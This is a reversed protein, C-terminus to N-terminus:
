QSQEVVVNTLHSNSSYTVASKVDNNPVTINPNCNYFCRYWKATTVITTRIRVSELNTCGSFCSEMKSVTEPIDPVQTLATCNLFCGDMDTVNEPLEQVSSLSSCGNFCYQMNTINAPLEPAETLSSCGEFCMNMNTVSAPIHPAKTLTTCGSFGSSSYYLSTIGDPLQTGSLDVYKDTNNRLITRIQTYSSSTLGTIELSYASDSDNPEQAQLWAELGDLSGSYAPVPPVVPSPTPPVVPVPTPAPEPTTAPTTVVAATSTTESSSVPAPAPTSDPVSVSTPLSPTEEPVVAGVSGGGGGGGGCAAFLILTLTAITIKILLFKKNEKM